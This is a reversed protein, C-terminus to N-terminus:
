GRSGSRGSTWGDEEDWRRRREARRRRTVVFAGGALMLILVWVATVSTLTPIWSTWRQYPAWALAAARAPTTGTHRAFAEAFPLGDAVLAAVAGPADPGHRRRVDAVLAAALRYARATEPESDSAFLRALAPLDPDGAIALGLQLGATFGWDREVSTAVGEHFWRPLQRGGAHRALAVHAIEHWVVSELSGYPYSGVRDPFIVVASPGTIRGVVWAPVNRARRDAEDLLTIDVRPPSPLGARALAVSLQELNMDAVADAPGALTRPAEVRLDLPAQAGLHPTGALVFAVAVAVARCVWAIM